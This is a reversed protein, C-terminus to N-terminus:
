LLEHSMNYLLIICLIYICTNIYERVVYPLVIVITQRGKPKGAAEQDKFVAVVDVSGSIDSCPAVFSDERRLLLVLKLLLQYLCYNCVIACTVLTNSLGHTCCISNTFCYVNCIVVVHLRKMRLIGM